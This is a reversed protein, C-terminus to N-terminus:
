GGSTGNGNTAPTAAPEERKLGVLEAADSAIRLARARVEPPAEVFTKALSTWLTQPPLPEAPPAPEVRRPREDGGFTGALVRGIGRMGERTAAALAPLMELQARLEDVSLAAPAAPPPSVLVPSPLLAQRIERERLQRRAEALMASAQGFRMALEPVDRVEPFIAGLWRAVEDLYPAGAEPSSIWGITQDLQGGLAAVRVARTREQAVRQEEARRAEDAARRQEEELAVQQRAWNMWTAQQQQLDPAYPQPSEVPLAPLPMGADIYRAAIRAAQGLTIPGGRRSRFGEETVARAISELTEGARRRRVVEHVLPEEGPIEGLPIEPM